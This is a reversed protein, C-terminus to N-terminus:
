ITQGPVAVDRIFDLPGWHGYTTREGAYQPTYDTPFLEHRSYRKWQKQWVNDHLQMKDYEGTYRAGIAIARSIIGQEMNSIPCEADDDLNFETPWKTRYIEITKGAESVLPYMRLYPPEWTYYIPQANGYEEPAPFAKRYQDPRMYLMPFSTAEDKYTAGMIDKTNDPAVYYDKGIVTKISTDVEKLDRWNYIAATDLLAFNLWPLVVADTLNSRNGLGTKIQTIIESRKLSM